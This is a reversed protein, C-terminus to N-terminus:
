TQVFINRISDAIQFSDFTQNSIVLDVLYLHAITTPIKRWNILAIKVTKLQHLNVISENKKVLAPSTVTAGAVIHNLEFQVTNSVSGDAPVASLNVRGVQRLNFRCVEENKLNERVSQLIDLFAMRHELVGIIKSQHSIASIMILISILGVAVSILVNILM